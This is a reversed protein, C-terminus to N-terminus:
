FMSAPISYSKFLIMRGKKKQECNQIEVSMISNQSVNNFKSQCKQTNTFLACFRKKKKERGGLCNVITHGFFFDQPRDRQYCYYVRKKEDQALTKKKSIAKPFSFFLFLSHTASKRYHRCSLEEVFM